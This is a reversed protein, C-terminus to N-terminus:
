ITLDRLRADIMPQLVPIWRKLESLDRLQINQRIVEDLIYGILAAEQPKLQLQDALSEMWKDLDKLSRSVMELVQKQEPTLEAVVKFKVRMSFGCERAWWKWEGRANTSQHVNAFHDYCGKAAMEPDRYFPLVAIKVKKLIEDCVAELDARVDASLRILKCQREFTHRFEEAKLPLGSARYAKLSAQNMQESLKQLAKEGHLRAFWRGSDIEDAKM